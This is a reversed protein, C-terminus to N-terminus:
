NGALVRAMERVDPAQDLTLLADRVREARERSVALQANDMFKDVIEGNALPREAAGRNIEERHRLERGDRTTIVVEGSYARPFPSDPDAEYTVKEALSLIAEDHLAEPELEALGFRRRSIGAAVIFPLSFKADYDSVPHLKKDAPECITKIVEAPVRTKVAAVDEPKLDFETALIIAADLCGHAFHCAPFPKVAVQQIEWTSGLNATALGYDCDAELPGLHSAYLGFRGEYPKKPGQFGQRAMAAGTIGAVGAWGPHFRKSWAGDELFELSGAGTSLTIGQAMALQGPTAGMLRGAVLACAYAGILGTPHFGVQHFGGKAVAGLRSGTEMGVVYATLLAKGDAGTHEAVGLAAPFASATSHIVGPVHTDDYDLGHVLIGNMLVADRLPLTAPMGIVSCKGFGALGRIATLSQHAFDWRTSALAIGAADLMLHRAREAITQPIDEYRLNHAFDALTAAISVAPVQKATEVASVAASMASPPM